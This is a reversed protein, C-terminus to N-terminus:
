STSCCGKLTITARELRALGVISFGCGSPRRSKRSLPTQDTIIYKSLHTLCNSERQSPPFDSSRRRRRAFLFLYRTVGTPRSALSAFLSSTGALPLSVALNKDPLLLLDSVRQNMKPNEHFLLEGSRPPLALVLYIIAVYLIRSIAWKLM